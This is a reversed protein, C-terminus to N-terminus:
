RNGSVGPKAMGVFIVVGDGGPNILDADFNPKWNNLVWVNGAQDIVCNTQRMLPSYCAPKGPGYLPEGTSLLVQEGASALTFGSKPMLPTGVPPEDALADPNVGMLLSIAAPEYVSNKEIPGFNAVWVNNNGDVAVGWPGKISDARFVRLSLGDPSIMYVTHDGGSAVWVNGLSDLAIGKLASGVALSSLLSLVGNELKFQCVSSQSAGSLGGSNTVWAMVANQGGDGSGGPAVVALGFPGSGAPQQYSVSKAPDGGLYVVISDNGFSAIWLNGQHDLVTSQARVVGGHYGNAPSIPQGDSAFRSVSGMGLPTPNFGGWGFNGVWVTDDSGVTVGFGPGLLGGGTIPSRPSGAAGDAPRGDPQLVIIGGTSLGTGQVVNNTVWAYGKRDFAINAPGGFPVNLGGSDNVKIAITWADPVANLAPLFRPAILSNEYLQAVCKAPNQAIHALAQLSTGPLGTRTSKALAYLLLRAQSPNQVCAALLNALSRTLRLSISQDANPSTLLVASPEGTRVDAINDNMRAAVGLGFGDGSVHDNLVFQALSFAAAVSTLENLCVEAPPAAGLCALLSVGCGLDAQVYFIGCDGASPVAISFKGDADTTTAGLAVAEGQQAQYLTLPKSVMPIPSGSAGSQVRGNLQIASATSQM